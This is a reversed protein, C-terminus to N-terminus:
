GMSKFTPQGQFSWIEVKLLFGGLRLSWYWHKRIIVVGFAELDGANKLSDFIAQVANTAGAYKGGSPTHVVEHRAM